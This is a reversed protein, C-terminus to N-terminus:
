LGKISAIEADDLGLAKLKSIASERIAAAAVQEPTPEPAPPNVFSFVNGDWSGGIRTDETAEVLESDPISFETEGDWVVVNEVTGNKVVAYNAMKNLSWSLVFETLEQVPLMILRQVQAAEVGQVMLPLMKPRNNAPLLVKGEAVGFVQAAM